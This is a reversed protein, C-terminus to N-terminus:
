SGPSAPSRLEARLTTGGGAPSDVELTGGLAEVRDALGRLGSGGAPDAGGVGDDSLEVVVREGAATVRVRVASAQAYKAVNTLAEAILYYAAAEVPEPLREAPVEAIEVPVPSRGALMEVAARLGRDTLVAPHLGRALERLEALALGLEDAAGALVERAGAPDSDLKSLAIRLALSLAVLRQQAGDHLNRELRRRETDGATVIRARSAVLEAEQAKRETIDTYAVMNSVIRGSGDRVPAAAISVPVLTGDKRLRVTELDNLSEGALVRAFLDESEERDDPRAMPLDGRGLMEEATWGFIREAAPNWLRIRTDLGFEVLAVPSSDILAQLREEQAKRETIDTYAVMNGVVRGSGDRVPAAAISVPVLGGDKRLRVTEYDNISEGAKVREFLDEAEARQEPPAMPLGGRGLMEEATWGFIREAAPNWLRIRTDPGFEVLALPSSDILAQQEGAPAVMAVVRELFAPEPPEATVLLRFYIPGLVAEIVTQPDTGAPLEGRAIAREVIEGDLALRETWFRENAEALPADHAGAAVVARVVAQGQPSGATRASTTALALLDGALSGTDAIEIQEGALALMADLVLAERTGWRRYLTTKHVGARTAVADLTLAAYGSEALEDITAALASARV